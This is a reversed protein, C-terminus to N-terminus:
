DLQNCLSDVSTIDLMFQKPLTKKLFDMKKRSNSLFYKYTKGKHKVDHNIKEGFAICGLLDDVTNAIHIEINSRDPVDLVRFYQHKGVNDVVCKYAGELICSKGIQNALKPLELSKAIEKGNLILRGITADEKYDRILTLSSM